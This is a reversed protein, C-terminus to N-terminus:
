ANTDAFCFAQLARSYQSTSGFINSGFPYVFGDTERMLTVHKNKPVVIHPHNHLLVNSEGYDNEAFGKGRYLGGKRGYCVIEGSMLIGSLIVRRKLLAQM